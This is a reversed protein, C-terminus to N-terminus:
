RQAGDKEKGAPRRGGENPWTAAAGRRRVFRLLERAQQPAPEFGVAEFIRISARNCPRIEAVLAEAGAEAQYRACAAALAATGIGRGRAAPDVNISVLADGDRGDFRVMAAPRGGAVAVFLRNDASALMDAFWRAHDQWAIPAANKAMARVHPDNRWLWLSESDAEEGARLQIPAAAAGDPEGLAAAAVLGAGTGDTIAAAAAIMRGRAGDDDVLAAVAAGIRDPSDVAAVAGAEALMKSVFRQNDAIVITVAPLGLCCREWSSVGPAGVALDAEVMLGIMDAPDVHLRLRPNDRALARVPELSPAGAGLVVDIACSVGAALASEVAKLTIRGMDTTGLSVLLNRATSGRRRALARPRAAAFGPRLMAYRASVLIRCDPPVLAAYDTPDRGFTQDVLIACDHPRNALDDVVLLRGGGAAFAQEWCRDLRYHDVITWEPARGALAARCRAADARQGAEDLPSRDWGLPEDALGPSPGIEILEAGAAALRGRTYPTLRACAFVSDLGRRGLEGALNLCRLVHGAGIRESADARFLVFPRGDRSM